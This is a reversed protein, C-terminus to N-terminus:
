EKLYKEALKPIDEKRVNKHWVNDPYVMVTVGSGCQGLCTAQAVRIGPHLGRGKAIRRLEKFVAEGDHDGCSPKEGQRDNTCVFIQRQYPIDHNEM